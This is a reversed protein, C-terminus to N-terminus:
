RGCGLRRMAATHYRRRERLREMKLSTGGFQGAADIREIHREHDECAGENEGSEPPPATFGVGAGDTPAPAPPSYQVAPVPPPSVIGLTGGEM